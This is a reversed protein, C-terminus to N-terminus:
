WINYLEKNYQKIVTDWNFEKTVMKIANEKMLDFEYENKWISYMNLMASKLSKGDQSEISIGANYKKILHGINTAETVICPKGFRAAEIVSLPLGENRSPHVFIDMQSLLNEKEEGFKSGFLIVNNTLNEEEIQKELENKEKSDGIIWLLSDPKEKNFESFAEILTDLGKTYIDLRGIFGFIIQKNKKAKFNGSHNSEYGYPLLVTKDNKFLEATGKAESEGICHIKSAYKLCTKEFLNFYIKKLWYSREMAIKNYAGHATFVYPIDYKHLQKAITYFIPIWGGHLHFVTSHRKSIISSEIDISIGFPNTSKEYLETNFNRKGYNHRIDNTIGWVTVYLGAEAQKTALQYVMKNVGNMRDPNAKGLVVHIIEM